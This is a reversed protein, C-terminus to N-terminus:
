YHRAIGHNHFRGILCRYDARPQHIQEGLRAQRRAYDVQEGSGTTFDARVQDINAQARRLIRTREAETMEHLVHISIM